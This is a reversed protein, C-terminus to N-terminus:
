PTTCLEHERTAVDLVDGHKVKEEQMVRQRALLEARQPNEAFLHVHRPYTRGKITLTLHYPKM